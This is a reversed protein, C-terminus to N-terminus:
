PPKAAAKWPCPARSTGARERGTKVQYEMSFVSKERAIVTRLGEALEGAFADGLGRGRAARALYNAGSDAQGLRMASRANEFEDWAKNVAVIIGSRDVLVIRSLLSNLIGRQIAESERLAEQAKVKERRANSRDVASEIAKSLRGLDRKPLYDSAGNQMAVVAETEDLHHSVVIFPLNLNSARTIELAREASFNPM